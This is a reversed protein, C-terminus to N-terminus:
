AVVDALPIEPIELETFIYTVEDAQSMDIQMDKPKDAHCREKKESTDRM